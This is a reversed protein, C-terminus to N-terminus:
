IEQNTKTKNTVKNGPKIKLKKPGKYGGMETRRLTKGVQVGEM